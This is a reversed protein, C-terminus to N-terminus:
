KAFDNGLFFVTVVIFSLERSIYHVFDLLSLMNIPSSTAMPAAGGRAAAVRGAACCQLQEGKKVGREQSVDEQEPETKHQM